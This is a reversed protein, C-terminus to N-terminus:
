LYTKMFFIKDSPILGMLEVHLSLLAYWCFSQFVPRIERRFHFGCWAMCLWFYSIRVKGSLSSIQNQQQQFSKKGIRLINLCEDAFFGRVAAFILHLNWFLLDPFLRHSLILFLDCVDIVSNVLCLVKSTCYMSFCLTSNKSTNYMSDVVNVDFDFEIYQVIFISLM